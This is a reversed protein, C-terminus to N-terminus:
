NAGRCLKWARRWKKWSGHWFPLFNRLIGWFQLKIPPGMHSGYVGACDLCVKQMDVKKLFFRRWVVAFLPPVGGSGGRFIVNKWENQLFHCFFVRFFVLLHSTFNGCCHLKRSPPVHSGYVGACDLCVKAMEIRTSFFSFHGWVAGKECLGQFSKRCKRVSGSVKPALQVLTKLTQALTKLTQALIPSFHEFHVRFAYFFM